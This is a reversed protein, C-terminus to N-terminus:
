RRKKLLKSVTERRKSDILLAELNVNYNGFSNSHVIEGHENIKIYFVPNKQSHIKHRVVRFVSVKDSDLAEMILSNEYDIFKEDFDPIARKVKNNKDLYILVYDTFSLNSIKSCRIPTIMSITTM